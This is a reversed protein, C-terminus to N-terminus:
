QWSLHAEWPASTTFFRGELAPLCLLRPNLGQTPFIGQLLAHYGVGTNKAPSDWLYLLRASWLDMPECLTLCLQLSKAHVCVM